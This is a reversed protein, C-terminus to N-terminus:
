LASQPKRENKNKHSLAVLSPSFCCLVVTLGVDVIM